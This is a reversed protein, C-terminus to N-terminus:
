TPELLLLFRDVVLRIGFAGLLTYTASARLISILVKAAGSSNRHIVYLLLVSRANLPNYRIGIRILM